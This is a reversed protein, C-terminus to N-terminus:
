GADHGSATAALGALRPIGNYAHVDHAPVLQMRDTVALTTLVGQCLNFEILDLPEGGVM